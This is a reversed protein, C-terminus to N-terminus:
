SWTLPCFGLGKLQRSAGSGHRAIDADTKPLELDCLPLGHMRLDWLKVVTDHAGASALLYSYPLFVVSTITVAPPKASKGSGRGSGVAAPRAHANEQVWVPSLIPATDLETGSRLRRGSSPAQGSFGPCRADWLMM